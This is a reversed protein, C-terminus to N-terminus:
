HRQSQVGDNAALSVFPTKKNATLALQHTYCITFAIIGVVIVFTALTAYQVGTDLGRMARIVKALGEFPDLSNFSM